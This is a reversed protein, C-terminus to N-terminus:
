AVPKIRNWESMLLEQNAAVIEQAARVDKTKMGRVERMAITEISILVEAGGRFVHVHMPLHDHTYIMVEFGDRRLVTPMTIERVSDM